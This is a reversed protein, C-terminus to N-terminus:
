RYGDAQRAFLRAYTGGCALLDDHSGNEIVSGKHLVVIQDALRVTPFRHSIVITTRGRSLERFNSLVAHEADADLASTPEDLVLIDAEERMFARALAIRQWQGGSLETGDELWRGLPAELGDPLTAAIESAGGHAIAREVRPVDDIHEISGLGVNERLNLNYCNFDQLVVGFRRRLAAPDWDRLDRDDVLIRGETPEYLRMLLKVLTTKGAGNDGILAVMAGPPIVLSVHRLSWAEKGPYRFSVDDLVIKLRGAGSTALAGGPPAPTAPSALQMYEWLNGAYLGHEYANGIGSLLSQFAQQGQRFALAYMTMDGLTLAGSVTLLVMGAYAAYLTVTGLLSLQAWRARRLNLAREEEYLADSQRRYRDLLAPGTGYLRVEKAHTDDTLVHELYILRRQAPSRFTHMEFIRKSFRMEAVAGPITAAVLAVVAWGSFRVLITAYGVLTLSAQVLSFGEMVLAIPRSAADRRARTLKDYHEPAEFFALDLGLAKELISLNIDYGLRVGLVNRVLSLGRQSVALAVALGLEVLVWRLAAERSRAVVADVIRKGVYAIGLPVFAGVATLAGLAITQGPSSRYVLRLAARAHGLTELARPLVGDRRPSEARAGPRATSM